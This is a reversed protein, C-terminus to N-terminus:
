FGGLADFRTRDVITGIVVIRPEGRLTGDIESRSESLYERIQDEIEFFQKTLMFLKMGAPTLQM